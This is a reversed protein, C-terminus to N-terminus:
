SKLNLWSVPNFFCLGSLEWEARESNKSFLLGEVLRYKLGTVLSTLEKGDQLAKLTDERTEM